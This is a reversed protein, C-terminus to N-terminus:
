VCCCRVFKNVDPLLGVCNYINVINPEEAVGARVGVSVICVIRWIPM